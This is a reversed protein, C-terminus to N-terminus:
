SAGTLAWNSGNEDIEVVLNQGRVQTTSSRRFGQCSSAQIGADAQPEQMLRRGDGSVITRYLGTRRWTYPTAPLHLYIAAPM